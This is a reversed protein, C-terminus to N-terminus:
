IWYGRIQFAQRITGATTSTGLFRCTLMNNLVVAMSSTSFIIPSLGFEVDIPSSLYGVSANAAIVQSGLMVYKPGAPSQGFYPISLNDSATTSTYNFVLTWQMILPGGTVAGTVMAECLRIGTMVFRHAEGMNAASAISWSWVPRDTEGTTIAAPYQLHGSFGGIATGLTYSSPASDITFNSFSQAWANKEYSGYISVANHSPPMMPTIDGQMVSYSNVQLYQATAPSSVQGGRAFWSMGSFKLVETTGPKIPMSYAIDNIYFQVEGTGLVVTTNYVTGPTLTTLLQTVTDSGNKTVYGYIGGSTIRFGAADQALGTSGHGTGLGIEYFTSGVVAASISWSTECYLPVNQAFVNFERRTQVIAYAGAGTNSTDNIRLGYSRNQGWGVQWQSSNINFKGTNLTTGWLPQHDLLTDTGVRLRYDISTEPSKLQTQGTISGDDNESMLRVSGVQAATTPLQVKLNGTSTADAVNGSSGEIRIGGM